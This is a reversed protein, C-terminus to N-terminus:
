LPVQDKAQDPCEPVSREPEQGGAERAGPEDEEDGGVDDHQARQRQDHGSEHATAVIDEHGEPHVEKKVEREADDLAADHEERRERRDIDRQGDRDQGDHALIPRGSGSSRVAGGLARAEHSPRRAPEFALGVTRGLLRETAFRSAEEGFREVPKRPDVTEPTDVGILRVKEVIGEEVPSGRNRRM